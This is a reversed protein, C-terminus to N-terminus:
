TLLILGTLLLRPRFVPETLGNRQIELWAPLSDPSAGYEPDLLAGATWSPRDLYRVGLDQLPDAELAQWLIPLGPDLMRMELSRGAQFCKPEEGETRVLFREGMWGDRGPAQFSASIPTLLGSVKPSSRDALGLLLGPGVRRAVLSVAGSAEQLLVEVGEAAQWHPHRAQPEWREPLPLSAYPTPFAPAMETGQLLNLASGIRDALAGKRLVTGLGRLFDWEADPGVPLCFVETQPLRQQLLQGWDLDPRSAAGDSLILLANPGVLSPALAELAGALDTPGFANIQSLAELSTVDHLEVTELLDAQFPVVRLPGRDWNGALSRLAELSETLPKGEMSGSVDLLIWLPLEPASDPDRFLALDKPLVTWPLYGASALLVVQGRRLASRIDEPHTDPSWINEQLSGTPAIRLSATTQGAPEQWRLRLDLPATPPAAAHLKLALRSASLNRLELADVQGSADLVSLDGAALDADAFHIRLWCDQSAPWTGPAAVSLIRPQVRPVVQTIGIGAWDSPDPMPSLARGDSRIILSDGAKLQPRLEQLAVSLDPSSSGKPHPFSVVRRKAVAERWASLELGAEELWEQLEPEQGMSPSRDLLVWSKGQRIDTPWIAAAWFLLAALALLRPLKM